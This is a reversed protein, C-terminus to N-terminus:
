HYDVIELIEIETVRTLDIGGNIDVPIPKNAPLFILRYPYKLDVAFQGHRNKHLEHCRPPPDTPIGALTPTNKLLVLRQQLKDAMENGLEKKMVDARDCLKKMKQSRYYIEM